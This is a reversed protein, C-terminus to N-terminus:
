TSPGGHLGQMFDISENFPGPSFPQSWMNPWLGQTMDPDKIRAQVYWGTTPLSSKGETTVVGSLWRTPARTSTTNRQAYVHARQRCAGPVARVDGPRDRCWPRESRLVASSPHWTRGSSGRPVSTPTGSPPTSAPAWFQDDFILQQATYGAPAAHRRVARKTVTTETATATYPSVQTPVSAGGAKASPPGHGRHAQQPEHRRHLRLLRRRRLRLHRRRLGGALLGPRRPHRGHGRHAQQPRHRRDLRLLRRRRLRLHGGDSAVLWYGRGDPTAAM